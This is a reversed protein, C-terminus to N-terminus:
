DPLGAVVLVIHLDGFHGAVEDDEELAELDVGPDEEFLGGDEILWTEDPEADAPVDIELEAGPLTLVIRTGRLAEWQSARLPLEVFVDTDVAWAYPQIRAGQRYWGSLIAEGERFTAHAAYLADESAFAERCARDEHHRTAQLAIEDRLAAESNFDGEVEAVHQFSAQYVRLMPGDAHESDLDSLLWQDALWPHPLSADEVVVGALGEREEDSFSEYVARVRDPFSTTSAM